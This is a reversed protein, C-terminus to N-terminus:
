LHQQQRELAVWTPRLEIRAPNLQINDYIELRTRGKVADAVCPKGTEDVDPARRNASTGDFAVREGKRAIPRYDASKLLSFMDNEHEETQLEQMWTKNFCVAQQPHLKQEALLTQTQASLPRPCLQCVPASPVM